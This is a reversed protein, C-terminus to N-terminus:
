ALLGAIIELTNKPAIRVQECNCGFVFSGGRYRRQAKPLVLLFPDRLLGANFKNAFASLYFGRPRPRRYGALPNSYSWCFLIVFYDLGVVFCSISRDGGM